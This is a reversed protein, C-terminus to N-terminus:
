EHLFACLQRASLSEGECLHLLKLLGLGNQPATSHAGAM